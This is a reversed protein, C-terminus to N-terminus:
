FCSWMHNHDQNAAPKKEVVKREKVAKKETTETKVGKKQVEDKVGKVNKKETAVSPKKQVEDKVTDNKVLGNEMVGKKYVKKKKKKKEVVDKNPIAM